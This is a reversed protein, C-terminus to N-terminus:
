GGRALGDGQAVVALGRRGKGGLAVGFQGLRDQGDGAVVLYRDVLVGFQDAQEGAQFEAVGNRFRQIAGDGLDDGEGPM